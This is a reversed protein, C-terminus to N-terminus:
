HGPTCGTKENREDAVSGKSCHTLCVYRDLARTAASVAVDVAGFLSSFASIRIYQLSENRVEIPVFAKAFSEASAAIAVSMITGLIMQFIVLTNSLGIRSTITRSDRDGIILFAARPLGENIVETVVGIYTYLDTTVVM